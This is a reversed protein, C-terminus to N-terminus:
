MEKWGKGVEVGFGILVGDKCFGEVLGFGLAVGCPPVSNPRRAACLGRISVEDFRHNQKAVNELATLCWHCQTLVECRWRKTM